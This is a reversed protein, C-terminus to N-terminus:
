SCVVSHARISAFTNVVVLDDIAHHIQAIFPIGFDVGISRSRTVVTLNSFDSEAPSFLLKWNM